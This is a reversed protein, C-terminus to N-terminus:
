RGRAPKAPASANRNATLSPTACPSGTVAVTVTAGFDGGAPDWRRALRDLILWTQQVLDEPELSAPLSRANVRYRRLTPQLVSRLAEFLAPLLETRGSRYALALENAPNPARDAPGDEGPAHRGSAREGVAGGDTARDDPGAEERDASPGLDRDSM